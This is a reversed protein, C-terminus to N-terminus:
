REHKGRKEMYNGKNDSGIGGGMKLFTMGRVAAACFFEDQSAM